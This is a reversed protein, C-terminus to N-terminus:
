VLENFSVFLIVLRGIDYIINVIFELFAVMLLFTPFISSSRDYAPPNNENIIENKPKKKFLYL